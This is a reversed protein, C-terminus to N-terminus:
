ASPPRSARSQLARIRDALTSKPASEGEKPHGPSAGGNGQYRVGDAALIAEIPSNPGDLLSTMRTIEAALDNIRERLLANEVREAAWAAETERKMASVERQLRTREERVRDLQTELEVKEAKLEDASVTHRSDSGALAQRLDAESKRATELELHHRDDQREREALLLSLEGRKSELEALQGALRQAEAIQAALQQELLAIRESLHAVQDREEALTKAVAEADLRERDLRGQTEKVDRELTAARARLNDIQTKLAAIEVRQSDALTGRDDLVSALRALEAEKAALLRESEHLSSTRAALEDETAHLQDRLAKERTDLGVNSATEQGLELKLRNIADSKKGLEALQSTTKNHLEEVTMELRRTSMAFEARLQDKDAQIEAMSLPTAADLRRMTLRVARAHVLPLMVLALLSAVLFGLGLYMAPEIM